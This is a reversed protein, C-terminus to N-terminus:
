PDRGYLVDRARCIRADLLKIRAVYRV